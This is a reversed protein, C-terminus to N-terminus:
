HATAYPAKLGPERKDCRRMFARLESDSMERFNYVLRKVMRSLTSLRQIV